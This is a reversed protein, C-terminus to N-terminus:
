GLSHSDPKKASGEKTNSRHRSHTSARQHRHETKELEPDENRKERGVAKENSADINENQGGGLISYAYKDFFLENGHLPLALDKPLEEVSWLQHGLYAGKIRMTARFEVEALEFNLKIENLSIVEQAFQHLDVVLITWRSHPFEAIPYNVTQNNLQKVTKHLSSFNLKYAKGNSHVTLQFSFTHGAEGVCQLYLYRHNLPMRSKSLSLKIYNATSVNGQIALVKRGLSKEHTITVQGKKELEKLDPLKCLKFLDVSSNMNLNKSLQEAAVM